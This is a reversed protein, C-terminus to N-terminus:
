RRLEESDIQRMDMDENCFPCWITKIHGNGSGHSSDWKSATFVNGCGICRFYRIQYAKRGM